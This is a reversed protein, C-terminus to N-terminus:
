LQVGMRRAMREGLVNFSVVTIVIALGGSLSQQTQNNLLEARGDSVMLGWEAHPPQVGLGLFSIAGFDVLASGFAITALAVVIPLVNPLIHRVCIQWGSFGALQLSEIYPQNRERLTVSRVVRATYPIYAISLALVPAWFGLGFVAAALVAILIAPIAFMINLVRKVAADFLGGWWAAALAIAAGVTASIAVIFAPGLFSLRAGVMLRSLIDRGLADTGLLHGASPGSGAALIDLDTSSHPALYPGFVALLTLCVCTTGSVVMILDRPGRNGDNPLATPPALETASTM